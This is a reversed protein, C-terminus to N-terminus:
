WSSELDDRGLLETRVWRSGVEVFRKAWGTPVVNVKGGTARDLCRRLEEPSRIPELRVTATREDFEFYWLPRDLSASWLGDIEVRENELHIRGQTRLWPYIPAASAVRGGTQLRAANGFDWPRTFVCEDNYNTPVAPPVAALITTGEPLNGATSVRQFEGLIRRQLEWGALYNDRQVLFSQTAAVVLAALIGCRLRFVFRDSRHTKADTASQTELDRKNRSVLLSALLAFAVWFSTLKRNDYGYVVAYSGSLVFLGASAVLCATCLAALRSPTWHSVNTRQHTCKEKPAAGKPLSTKRKTRANMRRAPLLLVCIAATLALAVLGHRLLGPRRLGDALLLPIQGILSLWYVSSRVVGGMGGPQLRSMDSWVLPAIGKQYVAAAVVVGLPPLVYRVVFRRPIGSANRRAPEPVDQPLVAGLRYPLVINLLLLPLFIEYILLGAFLLGNATILLLTSKRPSGAARITLALSAAWLLMSWAALQQMCVSFVLTSAICPVAALMLFAVAPRLGAVRRWVVATVAVAALWAGVLFTAYAQPGAGFPACLTSVGVLVAPALPRAAFLPFWERYRTIPNPFDRVSAVVMWDDCVFGAGRIWPVFVAAIFVVAVAVLVRPAPHESDVDM